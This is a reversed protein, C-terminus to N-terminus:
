FLESDGFLTEDDDLFGNFILNESLAPLKITVKTSLGKISYVELDGGLNEIYEKVIALGLGHGRYNKASGNELQRFREFAYEIKDMGIGFDEVILILNSDNIESVINVKGKDYSFKIANSLINMVISKLLYGDTRFINQDGKHDHVVEIKKSLAKDYFYNIGNKVLESINVNTSKQVVEGAEIEAASFINRMQFDLSLAEKNILHAIKIFKNLDILKNSILQESLGIISTLPNNIENRINSLFGSKVGESNKLKNSLLELEAFLTGQEDSLSSKEYLKKKLEEILLEDSLNKM